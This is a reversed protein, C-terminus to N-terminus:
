SMPSTAPRRERPFTRSANRPRTPLRRRERPFTESLRPKENGSSSRVSPTSRRRSSPHSRAGAVRVRERAAGPSLGTKWSLWHACSLIGHGGWGDREDFEGIWTLLEAEAAAIRGARLCIGDALENVTLHSLSTM